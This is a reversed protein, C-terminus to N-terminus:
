EKHHPAGIMGCRKYKYVKNTTPNIAGCPCPENRGVKERAPVAGSARMTGASSVAGQQALRTQPSKQAGQLHIHQEEGTPGSHRALEVKFITGAVKSQIAGLLEKFMRHGENKYEVLPDKQGYARLRVSDRLEEMLELHDMWLMDINRLMVFRTANEMNKEGLEREKTELEKRAVGTVYEIIAPRDKIDQVNAFIDEDTSLTNKLVTSAEKLDWSEPHEGQTHFEVVRKIESEIMRLMKGKIGQAKPDKVEQLIEVREKYITARQVNMVDDYELVHKRADFNYGEIKSQASEISKSVLPNQIPQDEPLKLTTMINKIKEGGFIRMIDDELSLFFQSSGPDGQRGARGRLQNDIRRAEHRETGIVHLGGLEIIKSAEDQLPPNGGLVIDVGRGAMNTAITVADLRGAQAIIEAEQEHNKANLIKHQIGEKKLLAGLYENKEISVTGVLVPQGRFHREKIEEVLTRFKADETKYVRDPLDTRLMPRNTPIMVVDLKYVKHFEEANTAATGTMGALKEYLRFYNQFTISALTRSEKQVEVGEKAEISQHLGGSYRRGPMLRGTFEDVIIVEGDKVVYDKDRKFLIHARLAEELHHVMRVGREEYINDVGLIKEIKTIGEDTLSVARMKEDVTYDTKSTLKPIILTFEQYMKTSDEDPASIILPTRAEDILISDVEDIIAFALSPPQIAEEARYAMNSRLYDFGFENNTGYTIDAGYAEKRSSPRLYTEFVKFGGETDRERDRMVDGEKGETKFDPDYLYATDHNICGVSLGLLHYIQGMWVMDRRALYDNVTVIHVGRGALANLYAALTSALTKGEGTKMEAIKGRHLVIGGILQVDFHRQSLTRKAAKRAAAFAEPLLDDLTEKEGLRKKFEETKNRLEADSFKEFESELANIKDVLPRLKKIAGENSDGLIKSLIGM